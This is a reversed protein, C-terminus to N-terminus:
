IRGTSITVVAETEACSTCDLAGAAIVLLCIRPPPAQFIGSLSARDVCRQCNSTTRASSLEMRPRIVTEPEGIRRM